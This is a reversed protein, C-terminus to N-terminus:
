DISYHRRFSLNLNRNDVALSCKGGIGCGVDLVRCNTPMASSSVKGFKMMEDIFDYKAQIFDKKKYGRIREEDSYYGLHIHEGWYAELIGESTWADYERGVTNEDKDYTRSPKWLLDKIKFIFACLVFVIAATVKVTKPIATESLLFRSAVELKSNIVTQFNMVVGGRRTRETSVQVADRRIVRAEIVSNLIGTGLLPSRFSFAEVTITNLAIAFLFSVVISFKFM